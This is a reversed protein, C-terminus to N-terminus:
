PHLERAAAPHLPQATLELHEPSASWLGGARVLAPMPETSALERYAEKPVQLGRKPAMGKNEQEVEGYATDDRQRELEGETLPTAQYGTKKSLVAQPSM